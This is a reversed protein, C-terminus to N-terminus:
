VPFIALHALARAVHSQSDSNLDKANMYFILMAVCAKLVLASFRFRLSLQPKTAALGNGPETLSRAEFSCSLPHHLLVSEIRRQDGSEHLHDKTGVLTSIRFVCWVSV